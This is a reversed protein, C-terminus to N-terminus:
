CYMAGQLICISFLLTRQAMHDCCIVTVIKSTQITHSMLMRSCWRRQLGHSTGSSSQVIRHAQFILLIHCSHWIIFYRTNSLLSVYCSHKLNVNLHYRTQIEALNGTVRVLFIIILNRQFQGLKLNEGRRSNLKLSRLNIIETNFKGANM